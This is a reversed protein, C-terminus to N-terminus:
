GGAVAKSKRCGRARARARAVSPFHQPESQFSAPHDDVFEVGGTAKV